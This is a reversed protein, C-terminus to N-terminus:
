CAPESAADPVAPDSSRRVYVPWERPGVKGALQYHTCIYGFVADAEPLLRGRKSDRYKQRDAAAIPPVESVVESADVIVAPPRQELGHLFENFRAASQYGPLFLPLQYVFRTPSPRGSVVNVEVDDGWVLVPDGPATTSLVYDTAQRSTTELRTRLLADSLVAETPIVAAAVLLAALGVPGPVRLPEVLPRARLMEGLSRVVFGALVAASPLCTLAYHPYVRGSSSALVLELPFDLLAIVLLPEFRRLRRPQGLLALVGIIWGSAAILGLGAPSLSRFVSFLALGRAGLSATAYYLNYTVTADILAPLAGHMLFYGGIPVVVSGVGLAVALVRAALTGSPRTGLGALMLYMGVAVWTGILTQRLCLALAGTVGFLFYRGFAHGNTRRRALLFLAAFQLPLAFAETYNADREILTPVTLLWVASGFVAAWLGLARKMVVLGLLAAGSLSVVQLLWLGWLSGPTLAVAILDILFILPPKHDWVDRYPIQGHLMQEAVYVFVGSDPGPMRRLLPSNPILLVVGLLVLAACALSLARDATAIRGLRLFPSPRYLPERAPASLSAAGTRETV